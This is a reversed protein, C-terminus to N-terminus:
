KRVIDYIKEGKITSPNNGMIATWERQTVPFKGMYFSKIDKTSDGEVLVLSSKVESDRDVKVGCHGCFVDEAELEGGCNTCFASERQLQQGCGPCFPKGDVMQSGCNNCFM